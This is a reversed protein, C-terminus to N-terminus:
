LVEKYNSLITTQPYINFDYRYKFLPYIKSYGFKWDWKPQADHLVLYKATQALKEIETIRRSPRDHDILAIDWKGSIDAKDWNDILYLKHYDSEYQKIENFYKPQNDYTVLKRDPWCAWHLYPTSFFGGGMELVPGNTIKMLKILAVLHSGYDKNLM